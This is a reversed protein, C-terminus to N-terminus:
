ARLAQLPLLLRTATGTLITESMPPLALGDEDLECPLRERECDRDRLLAVLSASGCSPFPWAPLLLLLAIFLNTLLSGVM